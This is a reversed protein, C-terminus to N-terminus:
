QRWEDCFYGVVLDDGTEEAKKYAAEFGEGMFTDNKISDKLDRAYIPTRYEDFSKTTV